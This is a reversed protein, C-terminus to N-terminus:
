EYISQMSMIVSVCSEGIEMYFHCCTVILQRIIVFFCRSCTHILKLVGYISHDPSHMLMYMYMYVARNCKVGGAKRSVKYFNISSISKTGRLMSYDNLDQKEHFNSSYINFRYESRRDKITGSSHSV